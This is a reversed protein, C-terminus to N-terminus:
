SAGGVPAWYLAVAEAGALRAAVAEARARCESLTLVRRLHWVSFIRGEIMVAYAVPEGRDPPAAPEADVGALRRLHDALDQVATRAPEGPHAHWWDSSGSVQVVGPTCTISAEGTLLRAALAEALDVVQTAHHDGDPAGPDISIITPWPVPAGEPTCPAWWRDGPPADTSSGHLFWPDLTGYPDPRALWAGRKRLRPLPHAEAHAERQAPTPPPGYRWHQDEPRPPRPDTTEDPM